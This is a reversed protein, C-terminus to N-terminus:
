FRFPKNLSITGLAVFPLRAEPFMMGCLLELADRILASRIRTSNSSGLQRTSRVPASGVEKPGLGRRTQKDRRVKLM